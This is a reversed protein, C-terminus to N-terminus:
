FTECLQNFLNDATCGKLGKWNPFNADVNNIPILYKSRIPLESALNSCHNSYFWSILVNICRYYSAM